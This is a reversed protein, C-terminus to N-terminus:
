CSWRQVCGPCWIETRDHRILWPGRCDRALEAVEAFTSWHVDPDDAPTRCGVCVALLCPLGLRVAYLAIGDETVDRWESVIAQLAASQSDYHPPEWSIGAGNVPRLEWCPAPYALVAM